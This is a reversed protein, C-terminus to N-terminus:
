TWEGASRYGTGSDSVALMWEGGSLLHVQPSRPNALAIDQTVAVSRGPLEPATPEKVM